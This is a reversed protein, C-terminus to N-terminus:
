PTSTSTLTLTPLNPTPLPPTIQEGALWASLLPFPDVKAFPPFPSTIEFHVHSTTFRADGSNGAWGLLKGAPVWMGVRLGPAIASLHAGYYRVGDDGLLRVSLGGDSAPLNTSPDWTDVSNIADITGNTVAVFNTGAPAFIDTAPFPHGGESFKALYKPQIPFVYSYLNITPTPTDTITSTPTITPTLTDTATATVTDTPSPSATFPFTPPVPSATATPPATPTSVALAPAAVSGLECSLLLLPLILLSLRKM